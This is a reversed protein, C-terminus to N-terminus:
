RTETSALPSRAAPPQPRLDNTVVIQELRTGSERTRLTIAHKGQKLHWRKGERPMLWTWNNFAWAPVSWQFEETGDLAFFFSNSGGNAAFLRGWILYDGEENIAFEFRCSSTPLGESNRDNVAAREGPDKPTVLYTVGEETRLGLPAKAPMQAAPGTHTEPPIDATTARLTAAAGEVGDENLAAVKITHSTGYELGEILASNAGWVTARRFYKTAPCEDGVNVYVNFGRTGPRAANWKLAIANRTAGTQRLGVASIVPMTPFAYAERGDKGKPVYGDVNTVLLRTAKVPRQRPGLESFEVDDIWVTGAQEGWTPHGLFPRARVSSVDVGPRAHVEHVVHRWETADFRDGYIVRDFPDTLPQADVWLAGSTHPHDGYFRSASGAKTFTGRLWFSFRYYRNPKAKLKMTQYLQTDTLDGSIKVCKVGSHPATTDLSTIGEPASWATLGDEFGPNSILNGAAIEYKVSRSLTLEHRGRAFQWSGVRAWHWGPETVTMDGVAEGDLTIGFTETGFPAQCRTWLIHTGPASTHFTITRPDSEPKKGPELYTTGPIDYADLAVHRVTGAEVQVPASWDSYLGSREVARVWYRVHNGPPVGKDVFECATVLTDNVREPPGTGVQRYVAYGATELCRAPPLWRIRATSGELVLDPARPPAPSRIVAIYEKLPRPRGDPLLRGGLDSIVHSGKEIRDKRTAKKLQAAPDEGWHCDFFHTADKRKYSVILDNRNYGHRVLLRGSPAFAETTEVPIVQAGPLVDEDPIAYLRHNVLDYCSHFLVKTGDPSGGPHGHDQRIKSVPRTPAAIHAPSGVEGTWLDLTVLREMGDYGSDAVLYRGDLGATGYHNGAYARWDVNGIRFPIGAFGPGWRWAFGGRTMLQSDGSFAEHTLFRVRRAPFLEATCTEFDVRVIYSELRADSVCKAWPMKEGANARRIIDPHCNVKTLGLLSRDATPCVTKGYFGATPSTLVIKPPGEGWIPLLGFDSLGDGNLDGCLPVYGSKPGILGEGANHLYNVGPPLKGVVKEEGTDLWHRHVTAVDDKRVFYIVGPRDRGLLFFPYGGQEADTGLLTVDGDFLDLVYARRRVRIACVYQGDDSFPRSANGYGHFSDCRTLRWMEAGTLEDRFFTKEGRAFPALLIAIVCVTRVASGTNM